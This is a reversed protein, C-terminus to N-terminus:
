RPHAPSQMRSVELRRQRRIECPRTRRVTTFDRHQDAVGIRPAIACGTARRTRLSFTLPEFGRLEVGCFGSEGPWVSVALHIVDRDNRSLGRSRAGPTGWLM